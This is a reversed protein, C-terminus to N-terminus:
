QTNRHKKQRPWDSPNVGFEEKFVKSFYYAYKFGVAFAIESITIETQELMQRAHRLRISRIFASPSLGTDDQIKQFLLRRSINMATALEQVGFNEDGLNKEVAIVASQIFDSTVQFDYFDSNGEEAKSEMQIKYNQLQNQAQDKNMKLTEKELRQNWMFALSFFSAELLLGFKSDFVPIEHGNALFYYGFAGGAIEKVLPGGFLKGSLAMLQGVVMIFAGGAALRAAPYDKHQFFLVLSVTTILALYGTKMFLHIREMVENNFILGASLICPLIIWLSIFALRVAKSLSANIKNLNLLREIYILLIGLSLMGLFIELFLQGGGLQHFIPRILLQENEFHLFHYALSTGFYMGFFPVSPSRYIFWTFVVLLVLLLTASFFIIFFHIRPTKISQMAHRLLVEQGPNVLFIDKISLVAGSPNQFRLLFVDGPQPKNILPAAMFNEPIPLKFKSEWSGCFISDIGKSRIHYVEMIECFSSSVWIPNAPLISQLDEYTFAAWINSYMSTRQLLDPFPTLDAGQIGWIDKVQFNGTRDIWWKGKDGINKINAEEIWEPLSPAASLRGDALILPLAIALLIIAIKQKM